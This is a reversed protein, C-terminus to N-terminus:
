TSRPLHYYTILADVVKFRFGPTIFLGTWGETAKFPPEPLTNQYITELVRTTTTGVAIIGKKKNKTQIIMQLDQPRIFYAEQDMKHKEIADERIPKFTGPGVHLTVYAMEVGKQKIQGMLNQTFHLGATPAAVAGIHRAFVTQYRAHDQHLTQERKIYPPLPIQGHKELLESFNGIWEFRIRYGRDREKGEVVGSLHGQAFVLRQGSRVKGKILCVWITESVPQVLLAEIKGGTEEKKGLLRAPFVRTNNLVMLDDPYLYHIIDKFQGEEIRGSKRDIIMLKSQDRIQAPTQAIRDPPLFFDFESLTM